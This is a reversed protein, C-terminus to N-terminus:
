DWEQCLAMLEGRIEENPILAGSSASAQVVHGAEVAPCGPPGITRLAKHSMRRLAEVCPREDQLAGCREPSADLGLRRGEVLWEEFFLIPADPARRIEGLGAARLEAVPPEQDAVARAQTRILHFSCERAFASEHCTEVGASLDTEAVREAFQFVCEDQWVREHLQRCAEVSMADRAELAATACEGARATPLEACGALADELAVEVDVAAAFREAESPVACALLALIM